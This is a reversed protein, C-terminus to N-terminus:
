KNIKKGNVIFYQESELYEPYKKYLSSEVNVFLDTEKCIISCQFNKQLSQFIVSILNSPIGENQNSSKLKELLEIIKNSYVKLDNELKNVKKILYDNKNEVENLDNQKGQAFKAIWAKAKRDFENKNDRYEIAMDRSYPSDINQEFIFFLYIGVLLEAYSTTTDWNLLFFANMRGNTPCVNLHYIKNIFLVEPCKKPYLLPFNINLHFLGEEYLSDKPGKIYVEWLNDKKELKVIGLFNKFNDSDINKDLKKEEIFFKIYDLTLYM